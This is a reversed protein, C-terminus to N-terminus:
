SVGQGVLALTPFVRLSNDWLRERLEHEPIGHVEALRQVTEVVYAPENRTGRRSAPPLYPCDTEVLLRDLRVRAAVERLVASNRYTLPGAFSIYYGAAQMREAFDRSGTFCHLVGPIEGQSRRRSSAELVEAVDAHADRTHVILPKRLQEALHAHWEFAERQRARPTRDRYYDLGTEGIGAVIPDRALRAIDEFDDESARSVANPHIGVTAIAWPLPRALEIAARSSRLDYGVLVIGELGAQRARQLVAERDGDFASDMVHAHTDVLGTM